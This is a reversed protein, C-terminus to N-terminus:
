LLSISVDLYYDPKFFSRKCKKTLKKQLLFTVILFYVSWLTGMGLPNENKLICPMTCSLIICNQQIKQCESYKDVHLIPDIVVPYMTICFTGVLMGIFGYFRWGSLNISKPVRADPVRTEPYFSKKMNKSFKNQNPHHLIFEVGIEFSHIM